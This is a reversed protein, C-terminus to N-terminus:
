NNQSTLFIKKKPNKKRAHCTISISRIYKVAMKLKNRNCQKQNRAKGKSKKRLTEMEISVYDMCEPMNDVKETLARAM